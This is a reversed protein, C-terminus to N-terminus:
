KSQQTESNVQFRGLMYEYFLAKFIDNFLHLYMDFM